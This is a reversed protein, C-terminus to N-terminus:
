IFPQTDSKEPETLTTMPTVGNQGFGESSDVTRRPVKWAKSVSKYESVKLPPRCLRERSKMSVIPSKVKKNGNVHM